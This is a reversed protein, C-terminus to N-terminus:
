GTAVPAPYDSSARSTQRAIDAFNRVSLSRNIRKWALVTAITFGPHDIPRARIESGILGLLSEPYITVGMGSAVLGLLGLTNSAELSARLAIGTQGFIDELRHRYEGWESLDGLVLRQGAIAEPAIAKQALLPHSAPMLLFLRDRSLTLSHYDPNEYPGILFGIDIEDSTLALKQRQTHLYRLELLVDPYLGEFRAVARPMLRPAAFSMYGVRVRGKRGEAVRGAHDVASRYDGLLRAAGQYFEAGAPTMWVEHTTREFLRFGLDTELKRIRRSLASQDLALREAARRFNLEQGLVLFSRLLNSDPLDKM